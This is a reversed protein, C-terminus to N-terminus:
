QIDDKNEADGDISGESFDVIVPACGIHEDLGIDDLLQRLECGYEHGRNPGRQYDAGEHQIANCHPCQAGHRGSGGFEVHLLIRVLRGFIDLIQDTENDVPSSIVTDKKQVQAEGKAIERIWSHLYHMPEGAGWDDAEPSGAEAPREETLNQKILLEQIDASDYFGGDVIADQFIRVVFEALLQERTKM